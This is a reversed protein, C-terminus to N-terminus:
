SFKGRAYDRNSQEQAAASAKGADYAAQNFGGNDGSKKFDGHLSKGLNATVGAKVQAKIKDLTERKQNDLKNKMSGLFAFDSLNKKNM